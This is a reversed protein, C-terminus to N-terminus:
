WGEGVARPRRKIDTITDSVELKFLDQIPAFLQKGLTFVLIRAFNRDFRRHFGLGHRPVPFFCRLVLLFSALSQSTGTQSVFLLPSGLIQQNQPPMTRSQYFNNGSYEQIGSGPYTICYCRTKFGLSNEGGQFSSGLTHGPHYTHRAADLTPV